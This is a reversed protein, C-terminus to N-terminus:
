QRTDDPPESLRKGQHVSKPHHRFQTQHESLNVSGIAIEALHKLALALVHQEPTRVDNNGAVIIDM